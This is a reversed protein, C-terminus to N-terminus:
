FVHDLATGKNANQKSQRFQGWLISVSQSFDVHIKRDDILHNDLSVGCYLFVKVLTNQVILFHLQKFIVFQIVTCTVVSAYFLYRFM